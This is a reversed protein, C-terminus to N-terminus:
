WVLHNCAKVHAVIVGSCHVVSSTHATEPAEEPFFCVLLFPLLLSRRGTLLQGEHHLSIGLFLCPLFFSRRGKRFQGFTSLAYHWSFDSPPHPRQASLVSAVLLLASRTMASLPLELGVVWFLERSQRGAFFFLLPLCSLTCPCVSQHISFGVPLKKESIKKFFVSKM